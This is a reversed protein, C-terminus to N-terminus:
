INKRALLAEKLNESRSLHKEREVDQEICNHEIIPAHEMDSEKIKIIFKSHFGSSTM